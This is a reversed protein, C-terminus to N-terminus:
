ATVGRKEAEMKLAEGSIKEWTQLMGYVVNHLTRHPEKIDGSENMENFLQNMLDLQPTFLSDMVNVFDGVDPAEKFFVGKGEKGTEM